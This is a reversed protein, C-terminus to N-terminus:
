RITACKVSPASAVIKRGSGAPAAAYFPISSLRMPRESAQFCSAPRLTLIGTPRSDACREARCFWPSSGHFTTMLSGLAHTRHPQPVPALRGLRNRIESGHNTGQALVPQVHEVGVTPQPRQVFLLTRCPPLP